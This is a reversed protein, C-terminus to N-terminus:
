IFKLLLSISRCHKQAVVAEAVAVAESEADSESEAVAEVERQKIDTWVM